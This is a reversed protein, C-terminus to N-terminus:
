DFLHTNAAFQTPKEKYEEGSEDEFYVREEPMMRSSPEFNLDEPADFLTFQEGFEDVVRTITVPGLYEHELREGEEITKTM